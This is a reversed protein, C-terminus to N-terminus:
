HPPPPEPAKQPETRGVLRDHWDNLFKVVVPIVAAVAAAVAQQLAPSM